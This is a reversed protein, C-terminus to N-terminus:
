HLPQRAKTAAATATAVVWTPLIINTWIETFSPDTHPLYRQVFHQQIEQSEEPDALLSALGPHGFLIDLMQKIGPTPQPLSQSGMSALTELLFLIPFQLPPPPPQTKAQQGRAVELLFRKYAATAAAM